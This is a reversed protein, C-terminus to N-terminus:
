GDTAGGHGGEEDRERRRQRGTAGGGFVPAVVLRADGRALEVAIERLAGSLSTGSPCKRIRGHGPRVAIDQVPRLLLAAVRDDATGGSASGRSRRVGEGSGDPTQARRRCM